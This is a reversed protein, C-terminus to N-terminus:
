KILYALCITAPVTVSKCRINFEKYTPFYNQIEPLLFNHNFIKIVRMLKLLCSFASLTLLSKPGLGYKIIEMATRMLVGSCKSTHAFLQLIHCVIYRKSVTSSLSISLMAKTTDESQVSYFNVQHWLFCLSNCGFAPNLHHSRDRCDAMTQRRRIVSNSKMINLFNYESFNCVDVRKVCSGSSRRMTSPSKQLNWGIHCREKSKKKPRNDVLCLM